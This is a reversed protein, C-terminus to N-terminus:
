QQSSNPNATGPTHPTAGPPMTTKDGVIFVEAPSSIHGEYRNMKIDILADTLRNLTDKMSDLNRKDQVYMQASYNGADAIKAVESDGFNKFSKGGYAVTGKSEEEVVAAKEAIAKELAAKADVLGEEDKESLQAHGAKGPGQILGGMPSVRYAGQQWGSDHAVREALSMANVGAIGANIGKDIEAEKDGGILKNFWQVADVIAPVFAKVAPLLARSMQDASKGLEINMIKAQSEATGMAKEFKMQVEAASQTVRLYNQFSETLGEMAHQHRQTENTIGQEAAEKYKANYDQMLANGVARSQQNPFVRNIVNRDLGGVAQASKAVALMMQLPDRVSTHSSDTYTNIGLAAMRKVETPNALDRIFAMSSQTAQQATIRGGKARAYQTMAGMVAVRQAVDNTVGAQNLTAASRPDIKFFNAQGTLKGMQAAMDKIAVAGLHGQGAVTRMISALAPGKDDIDGMAISVNAAAEMMDGMDAGNAKAIKGLDAMSDRATKLDGTMKVFREMGSLVDKTDTGTATGVQNAQALIDNPDTYSQSGKPGKGSGIYGQSAIDVALQQRSNSAHLQSQASIDVGMGSLASGVMRSGMRFAAAGTRMLLAGGRSLDQPAGKKNLAGDAKEADKFAKANATALQNRARAAARDDRAMEALAAKHIAVEQSGKNKAKRLDEADWAAMQDKVSKVAKVKSKIAQEGAKGAEVDARASDKASAKMESAIQKRARKAQDVITSMVQTFSSDISAGVRLRLERDAM